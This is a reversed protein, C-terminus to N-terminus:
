QTNAHSPSEEKHNTQPMRRVGLVRIRRADSLLVTFEFDDLEIKEDRNPVYGFANTILGGITDFEDNNFHAHFYSNFEDITALAKVNFTDDSHAVIPAEKDDDIDFEDDIEGVIEELVDEITLLGSIGGYEDVVIAMHNRNLRFEKLLVNLRKSEPVFIVPRTIEKLNIQQQLPEKTYRLLDKALLVGIVDDKDEGVIPFRSHGSAIVADLINELPQDREIVAMKSRPVMIDRVQMESVALVGEIMAISDGDIFNREKVERLFSLFDQKNKPGGSLAHFFRELWSPENPATSDDDSM